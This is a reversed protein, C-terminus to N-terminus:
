HRAKIPPHLNVFWKELDFKFMILVLATNVNQIKDDVAPIKNFIMCKLGKIASKNIAIDIM